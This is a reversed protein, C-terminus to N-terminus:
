MSIKGRKRFLVAVATSQDTDPLFHSRSIKRASLAIFQGQRRGSPGESKEARAHIQTLLVRKQFFSKQQNISLALNQNEWKQGTVNSM